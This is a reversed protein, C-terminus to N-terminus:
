WQTNWKAWATTCVAKDVRPAITTRSIIFPMPRRNPDRVAVGGLLAVGGRVLGAKGMEGTIDGVGDVGAVIRDGPVQM